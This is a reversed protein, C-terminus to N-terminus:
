MQELMEQLEEVDEGGNLVYMQYYQESKQTDNLMKYALSACGMAEVQASDLEISKLANEVAQEAQGLRMYAQAMNSYAIADKANFRIAQKCADITKQYQEMELYALAINSWAISNTADRKLVEEFAKKTEWYVGDDRWCLGIMSMVAVYENNTSCQPILNNLIKKARELKDKNFYDVATMLQKYHKPDDSFADRIIEPFNNVNARATAKKQKHSTQLIAILYVALTGAITAVHKYNPTASFCLNYIILAIGGGVVGVYFILILLIQLFKRM